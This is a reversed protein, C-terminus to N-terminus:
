VNNAAAATDREAQVRDAASGSWSSSFRIWAACSIRAAPRTCSFKLSRSMAFNMRKIDSSRPSFMRTFGPTEPLTETTDGFATVRLSARCTISDTSSIFLRERCSM